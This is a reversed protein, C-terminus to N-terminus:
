LRRSEKFDMVRTDLAKLEGQLGYGKHRSGEARRLNDNMSGYGKHRSGEDRRSAAAWWHDKECFNKHDIKIKLSFTSYQKKECLFHEKNNRKVFIRIILKSRLLFHEINNRKM